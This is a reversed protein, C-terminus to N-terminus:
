PFFQQFTGTGIFLSSMLPVAFIVGGFVISSQKFRLALWTVLQSLVCIWLILLLLLSVLNLGLTVSLTQGFLRTEGLPYGFMVLPQGMVAPFGILGLCLILLLGLLVRVQLQQKIRFFRQRSVPLTYLFRINDREFDRTILDFIAFIGLILFLLAGYNSFFYNSFGNMTTALSFDLCPANKQALLHYKRVSAAVTAASLGAIRLKKNHRTLSQYSQWFVLYQQTLGQEDPNASSLNTVLTDLHQLLNESNTQESLSLQKQKQLLRAQNRLQTQWSILQSIEQQKAQKDHQQASLYFGFVLGLLVLVLLLWRGNKLYRTWEFRRM